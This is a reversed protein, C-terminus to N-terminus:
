NQSRLIKIEKIIKDSNNNVATRSCNTVILKKGYAYVLYNIGIVFHYGCHASSDLPSFVTIKRKSAGKFSEIVRFTFKGKEKNVVTGSLVQGIFVAKAEKMADVPPPPEACDCASVQKFFCFLFIVILFLKKM